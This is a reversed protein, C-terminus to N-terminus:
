SQILMRQLHRGQQAEALHGTRHLATSQSAQLPRLHRAKTESVLVQSRWHEIALRAERSRISM